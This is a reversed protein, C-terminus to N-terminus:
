SIFGTASIDLDLTPGPQDASFPSSLFPIPISAAGAAFTPSAIPGTVESRIIESGSLSLFVAPRGTGDLDFVPHATDGTTFPELNEFVAAKAVTPAPGVLDAKPITVFTTRFDGGANSPFMNASLYVGDRDVGLLPFDAWRLGESDSPIAFGAWEGTPDSTRSVALLFSNSVNGEPVEGDVEM